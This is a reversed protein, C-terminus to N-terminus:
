ARDGRDRGRREEQRIHRVFFWVFFGAMGLMFVIVGVGAWFDPRDTVIQWWDGM